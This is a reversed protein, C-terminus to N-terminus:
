RQQGTVGRRRIERQQETAERARAGEAERRLRNSNLREERTAGPQMAKEDAQRAAEEILRTQVRAAAADTPTAEPVVAAPAASKTVRGDAAPYKTGVPKGVLVEEVTSGILEVQSPVTGHGSGGALFYPLPAGAINYEVVKTSVRYEIKTITFPIFKEVVARSNASPQNINNRATVLNGQDDYGYFRIVFAYAGAPYPVIAKKAGGSINKDKNTEQRGYVENVANRLNEVLTIGYPEYIKFSLAVASHAARTGGLSLRNDIVLDDIYYDLKFFRNRSGVTTGDEALIEESPAGGSRALLNFGALNAQRFDFRSKAGKQFKNLVGPDLLYLSLNYTYSGYQALVNPQPTIANKIKLATPTARPPRTATVRIADDSVSFSTPDPIQEAAFQAAEQGLADGGQDVLPIPKLAM